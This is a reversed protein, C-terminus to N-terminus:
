AHRGREKRLRIEYHEEVLRLINQVCCLVVAVIMLILIWTHITVTQQLFNGM